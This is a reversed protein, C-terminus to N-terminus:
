DGSKPRSSKGPRGRSGKLHAPLANWAERAERDTCGTAARCDRLADNRKMRRGAEAARPIERQMWEAAAETQQSRGQVLFRWTQASITRIPTAESILVAGNEIARQGEITKWHDPSAATLRGDAHEILGLLNGGLLQQRIREAVTVRLRTQQTEVEQWAAVQRQADAVQDADPAATGLQDMLIKMAPPNESPQSWHHLMLIREAECAEEPKQKMMLARDIALALADILTGIPFSSSALTRSRKGDM